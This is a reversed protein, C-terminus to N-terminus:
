DIEPEIDGRIVAEAWSRIRMPFGRREIDRYGNHLALSEIECELYEIRRRLAAAEDNMDRLTRAAEMCLPGDADRVLAAAIEIAQRTEPPKRDITPM